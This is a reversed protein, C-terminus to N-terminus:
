WRGGPEALAARNSGAGGRIGDIGVNQAAETGIACADVLEGDEALSAIMGEEDGLDGHSALPQVDDADAVVAGIVASAGAADIPPNKDRQRM